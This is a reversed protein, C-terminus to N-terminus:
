YELFAIFQLVFVDIIIDHVMWIDQLLLLTARVAVKNRPQKSSSLPHVGRELRVKM